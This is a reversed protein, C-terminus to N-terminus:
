WLLFIPVPFPLSLSQPLSFAFKVLMSHYPARKDIAFGNISSRFLFYAEGSPHTQPDVIILTNTKYTFEVAELNAVSYFIKQIVSAAVESQAEASWTEFDFYPTITFVLDGHIFTVSAILHHRKKFFHHAILAKRYPAERMPLVIPVRITKDLTGVSIRQFRGFAANPAISNHTPTTSSPMFSPTNHSLIVLIPTM